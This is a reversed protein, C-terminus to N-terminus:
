NWSWLKASFCRQMCESAELTRVVRKVVGCRDYLILPPPPVADLWSSHHLLRVSVM